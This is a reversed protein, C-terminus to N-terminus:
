PRFVPAETGLFAGDAITWAAVIAAVSTVAILGIALQRRMDGTQADM